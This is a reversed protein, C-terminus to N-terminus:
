VPELRGNWIEIVLAEPNNLPYAEKNKTNMGM